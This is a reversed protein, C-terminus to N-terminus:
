NFCIGGPSRSQKSGGGSGCQWLADRQSFIVTAPAAQGRRLETARVQVRSRGVLMKTLSLGPFLPAAARETSARHRTIKRGPGCLALLLGGCLWGCVWPFIGLGLKLPRFDVATNVLKLIRSIDGM